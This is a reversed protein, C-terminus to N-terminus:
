TKRKTHGVVRVREACFRLEFRGYPDGCGRCDDNFERRREGAAFVVKIRRSVAGKKTQRPPEYITSTTPKTQWGELIVTAM